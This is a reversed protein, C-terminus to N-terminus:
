PRHLRGSSGPPREEFKDVTFKHIIVDDGPPIGAKRRVAGLQQEVTDIGEIGPLLLARRKGNTERMIVGYRAPDLEATDEILKPEHLLSVEYELNPLEEATVRPFRPDHAAAAIARDVTEAFLADVPGITGMCGRLEGGHTRITVFLGHRRPMRSDLAPDLTLEDGGLVFREVARRATAVLIEGADLSDVLRM